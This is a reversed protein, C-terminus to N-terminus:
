PRVAWARGEPNRSEEVEDHRREGQGDDPKDLPRPHALREHVRISSVGIRRPVEDPLPRGVDRGTNKWPMGTPPEAEAVERTTLLPALVRRAFMKAPTTIAM